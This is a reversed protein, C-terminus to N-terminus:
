ESLVQRWLGGAERPMGTVDFLGQMLWPRVADASEGLQSLHQCLSAEGACQCAGVATADYFDLPSSWVVFDMGRTTAESLVQDLFARQLAESTELLPVCVGSKKELREAPLGAGSVVVPLSPSREAVRALWDAPLTELAGLAAAPFSALGLRDAVIPALLEHREALCEAPTLSPCRGPTRPYGYLDEVDVSVVTIAAQGALKLATDAATSFGVMAEYAGPSAEGCNEEFLNIRRSLLVFEPTFLNVMWEVYRAYASPWKNPNGGAATNPCYTNLWNETLRLSGDVDDSAQATLNDFRDNVPSLGLLLQRGSAQVMDRLSQMKAVWAGPLNQPTADAASFEAWPIGYRHVPLLVLEALSEPAGQGEADAETAEDLPVEVSLFEDTLRWREGGGIQYVAAEAGMLFVRSSVDATDEQSVDKGSESPPCAAQLLILALVIGQWRAELRRM